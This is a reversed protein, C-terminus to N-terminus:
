GDIFDLYRNFPIDDAFDQPVSEQREKTSGYDEPSPAPPSENNKGDLLIIEGNFPKLVIETTYKEVGQQDTWKRTALQGSLYIKSGKSVYKQVVNEILPQNFIVVRHWETREKKEGTNKDKWRESTALSFNAVKDGSQMTRIEPSQGLHGILEVKNLM